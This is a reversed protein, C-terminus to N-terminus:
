EDKPTTSLWDWLDVADRAARPVWPANETYSVLLAFDEQPITVKAPLEVNLTREEENGNSVVSISDLVDLLRAEKRIVDRSREGKGDGGGLLAIRLLKFRKDAKSGEFVLTRTM